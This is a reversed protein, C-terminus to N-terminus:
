FVRRKSRYLTKLIGVNLAFALLTRRNSFRGSCTAIEITAIALRPFYKSSVVCSNVLHVSIAYLLIQGIILAKLLTCVVGDHTIDSNM